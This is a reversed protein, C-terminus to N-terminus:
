ELFRFTSLMQDFLTPVEKVDGTIKSEPDYPNGEIFARDSRIYVIQYCKDNYFTRYIDKYSCGASMGCYGGIYEPYNKYYYFSIGNVEKTSVFSLMNKEELISSNFMCDEPLNIRIISSDIEQVTINGGDLSVSLGTPTYTPIEQTKYGEPYKFEFEYEENRYTEWDVTENLAVEGSMDEINSIKWKNAEMVLFVKLKHDSWFIKPLLNIVVSANNSNIETKEIQIDIDDPYDQAWIIPDALHVNQTLLLKKYNDRLTNCYNLASELDSHKTLKETIYCQYFQSVFQDPTKTEEKPAGFYQWVLVGGAIFAIIIVIIIGVLTSMGKNFIKSQNQNNM